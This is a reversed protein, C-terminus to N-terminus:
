KRDKDSNDDDHCDDKVARWVHFGALATVLAAYSDTLLGKRALFFGTVAFFAILIFSRGGLKGYLSQMSASKCTEYASKLWNSKLKPAPSVQISPQEM